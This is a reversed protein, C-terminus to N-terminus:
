LLNLERDLQQDTKERWHAVQEDFSLRHLANDQLLLGLGQFLAIMVLEQRIAPVFSKSCGAVRRHGPAVPCRSAAM